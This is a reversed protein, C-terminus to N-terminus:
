PREEAYVWAPVHQWGRTLARDLREYEPEHEAVLRWYRPSHNMHRTHCLEHVFLYRVVEPPQFLLSVNLSITGSRSCSGWRTRQRRLQIREYTFGGDRAVEAVWPEFASRAEEVLWDRLARRTDAQREPDCRVELEGGGRPQVRTRSGPLYTVQWDCGTAQLSVREPLPERAPDPRNAFVAVKRDIWERHRAVFGAVVDPRTGQPVTVEVRGGPYVRVTLRRARASERVSFPATAARGDFLTLQPAARDM